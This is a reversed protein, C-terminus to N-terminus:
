TSKRDRETFGVGAEELIEKAGRSKSCRQNHWLTLDAMPAAYTAGAIPEGAAERGALMQRHGFLIGGVGVCWGLPDVEGVAHRQHPDAGLPRPSRHRGDVLAELVQPWPHRPRLLGGGLRADAGEERGGFREPVLAAVEAVRDHLGSWRTRGQLVVDDDAPAPQVPARDSSCVDSSWDSIRM